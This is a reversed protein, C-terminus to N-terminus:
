EYLPTIKYDQARTVRDPPQRTITELGDEDVYVWAVPERTESKTLLANSILNERYTRGSITLEHNVGEITVYGDALEHLARFVDALAEVSQTRSAQTAETIHSRSLSLDKEAPM